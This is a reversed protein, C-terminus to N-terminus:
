SFSPRSSLSLQSVLTEQACNDSKPKEEFINNRQLKETRHRTYKKTPTFSQSNRKSYNKYCDVLNKQIQSMNESESRESRYMLELTDNVSFMDKSERKKAFHKQLIGDTARGKPKHVSENSFTHNQNSSNNITCLGILEIKFTTGKGPISSVKVNGGM